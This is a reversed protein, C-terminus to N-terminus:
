RSPETGLPSEANAQQLTPRRRTVQHPRDPVNPRLAGAQQLLNRESYWSGTKITSRRLEQQDLHLNALSASAQQQLERLERLQEKLLNMRGLLDPTLTSGQIQSHEAPSSAMAQVFSWFQPAASLLSIEGLVVAAVLLAAYPGRLRKPQFPREPGTQTAGKFEEDFATLSPLPTPSRKARYQM